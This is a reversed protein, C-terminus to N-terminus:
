TSLVMLHGLMGHMRQQQPMHLANSQGSLQSGTSSPCLPRLVQAHKSGSIQDLECDNATERAYNPKLPCYALRCNACAYLHQAGSGDVLDHSCSAVQAACACARPRGRRLRCGPKLRVEPAPAPPAAAAALAWSCPACMPCSSRPAAPLSAAERGGGAGSRAPDASMRPAALVSAWIPETAGPRSTPSDPTERTM